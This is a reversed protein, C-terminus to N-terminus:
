LASQLILTKLLNCISWHGVQQETEYYVAINPKKLPFAEVSFDFNVKEVKVNLEESLTDIYRGLLDKASAAISNVQQPIIFDGADLILAGEQVETKEAVWYVSFDNLLLRNVFRFTNTNDQTEEKESIIYAVNPNANTHFTFVLFSAGLIILIIFATLTIKIRKGMM